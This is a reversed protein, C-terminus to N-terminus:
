KGKKPAEVPELVFLNADEGGKAIESILEPNDKLEAMIAAKRKQLWAPHEVVADWVFGNAYSQSGLIKEIVEPDSTVLQGFWGMNRFQAHKKIGAIFKGDIVTDRDDRITVNYARWRSRFCREGEKLPPLPLPQRDRYQTSGKQQALAAASMPGSFAPATQSM